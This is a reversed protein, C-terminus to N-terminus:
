EKKFDKKNYENNWFEGSDFMKASFKNLKLQVDSALNIIEIPTINQEDIDDKSM